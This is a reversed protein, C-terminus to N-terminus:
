EPQHQGRAHEAQRRTQKFGQVWQLFDTPFEQGDDTRPTGHERYVAAQEEAVQELAGPTDATGWAVPLPTSRLHQNVRQAARVRAEAGETEFSHHLHAVKLPDFVLAKGAKEGETHVAPFGNPLLVVFRNPDQPLPAAYVGAAVEPALVGSNVLQKATSQTIAEIGRETGIRAGGRPVWRGNVQILSALARREAVKLNDAVTANPNAMGLRIAEQQILFQMQRPRPSGDPMDPNDKLYSGLAKSVDLAIDQRRGKTAGTPLAQISEQPTMGYLTLNDHHQAFLTANEVSLYREAAIRDIKALESYLAYNATLNRETTRGLMDKLQPIVIGARTYRLIVSAKTAQDGSAVAAAWEHEASKTLQSDTLSLANGATLAKITEKHERARRAETEMHRLGAQNQDIWRRTFALRDGGSLGARNAIGDIEGISLAGREAKAQLQYEMGSLVNAQQEEFAKRRVTAGASIATEFREGWGKRDWLPVDDGPHKTQLFATATEPDVEGTEFLNAYGAAIIDDAEDKSIYAFEETDIAARFSAIQEPTRLGGAKISNRVMETLNESQREFIEALEAKQRETAIEQQAQAIQPQLRRMIQPDQFASDQLLAAFREQVVPAVNKGPELKAVERAIQAKAAFLKNTAETLFYGRRYGDSQEALSAQPQAPTGALSEATRDQAGQVTDAEDKRIARDTSARNAVEGLRAFVSRAAQGIASHGRAADLSAHVQLSPQESTRSAITMRRLIDHSRVRQSM